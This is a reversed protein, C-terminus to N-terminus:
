GTAYRGARWGGGCNLNVSLHLSSNAAKEVFYKDSHASHAECYRSVNWIKFRSIPLQFVM